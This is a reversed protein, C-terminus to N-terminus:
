LCYPMLGGSDYQNPMGPCCNIEVTWFIVGWFSTDFYILEVNQNYSSYKKCIKWGLRASWSFSLSLFTKEDLQESTASWRFHMFADYNIIPCGWLGCFCLTFIRTSHSPFLAIVHKGSSTNFPESDLIADLSKFVKDPTNKKIDFYWM